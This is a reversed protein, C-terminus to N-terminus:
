TRQLHWSQALFRDGMREWEVARHADKASWIGSRHQLLGCGLLGITVRM